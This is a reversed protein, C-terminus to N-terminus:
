VSHVERDQILKVKVIEKFLGLRPQISNKRSNWMHLKGLIVFYNLLDSAVETKGIMVDQLKLEVQNGSLLFWYNEFGKWFHSTKPCEYFLHHVTEPEVGCLSCTDNAAYGIKALCSNTYLIDNLIKFQFSRIFAESIISKM